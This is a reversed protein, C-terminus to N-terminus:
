FGFKKRHAELAARSPQDSRKTPVRMMSGDLTQYTSSQLVAGLMVKRSDEHVALMGRDFMRHIDLRMCIGNAVENSQPGSYPAIHAADLAAPVDTATIACATGYAELVRTRFGAQGERIASERVVRRREDELNSFDTTSAASDDPAEAAAAPSSTHGVLDNEIVGDIVDQLVRNTVTGGRSLLTAPMEAGQAAEWIATILADKTPLTRADRIGLADAVAQLFDRRVTGGNSTTFHEIGLLDSLTSMLAREPFQQVDESNRAM